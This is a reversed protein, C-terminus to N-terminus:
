VISVGRQEREHRLMIKKAIRRTSNLQHRALTLLKDISAATPQNRCTHVDGRYLCSALHQLDALTQSLHMKCQSLEIQEAEVAAKYAPTERISQAM